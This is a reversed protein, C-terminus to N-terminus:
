VAVADRARELFERGRATKALTSSDFEWYMALEGNVPPRGVKELQKQYSRVVPYRGSLSLIDRGAETSVPNLAALANRLDTLRTDSSRFGITRIVGALGLGAGLVPFVSAAIGAYDARGTAWYVTVATGLSSAFILLFTILTDRGTIRKIEQKLGRRADEIMDLTPPTKDILFFM